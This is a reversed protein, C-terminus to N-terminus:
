RPAPALLGALAGISASGLAVLSEPIPKGLVALAIFGGAAMISVAGLVRVVTHYVPIDEPIHPPLERETM